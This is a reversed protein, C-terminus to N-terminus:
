IPEYNVKYKIHAFLLYLLDTIKNDTSKSKGIASVVVGRRLPNSIVIDRVKKFQTANAMSSGGFKCVISM